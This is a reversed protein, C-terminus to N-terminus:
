GEVVGEARMGGDMEGLCVKSEDKWGESVCEDRMGRLSLSDRRAKGTAKTM